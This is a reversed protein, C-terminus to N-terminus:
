AATPHQENPGGGSHLVEEVKDVLTTLTYPKQLFDAIAEPPLDRRADEESYGSTVIVRLGPYDHNLIPVLEAGGMVPMTLDLLVLTPLTSAGALAELADKGNKAELVEHGQNRLTMCALSRLMDEDDVVLITARRRDQRRSTGLRDGAPIAAAAKEASAPMFVRFTSGAGPSSHVQIFGDFSRVIGQVAPLGLGRGTFKTSFFPDFIQALTAEDMGAGNDTVELCVFHGPRIDFAQADRLVTEPTVGCDSTTVEIRGETQPPIAESANIVLDTLVREIQSPDGKILLEEPSLNFKLEVRKPVSVSLLEASGSVVDTLNFTKSIFHGKGAYALLQSTLHAARESATIIHQLEESLPYRDLALGANGTIVTLLNNFDHAIGGALLGIGELKQARRLREETRKHETIDVFVGVAGTSRGEADLLPVANGIINSRKGDFFALELEVDYVAQGTAAAKRLPLEDPPIENGDQIFRFDARYEDVLASQSLDSEPPKRLLQRACRNGLVFRCEPDRSIFMAVPMADMIAQLESHAKRLADETRRQESIDTMTGFWRAVKGARDCVPMARTLFPRVVHDTGRVAFVSEFPEGAAISHQWSELAGSSAERDLASLWGWGETQESTLGTYDRWRQNEWFFWGDPSAMGCLQPIADALTRFQNESQRLDEEMKKRATIDRTIALICAPLGLEDGFLVERTDVVLRRGDRAMPRLEAEWRGERRLIEDIETMSLDGVTQLLQHSVKGAADQESWGYIEEAGKNWTIVRHDCDMTIVADHSLDILQAHRRLEQETRARAMLAERLSGALLAVPTASVVFLGLAWGAAPDAFAHAPKLFFWAVAVASLANAAMGPGRGGFLATLAVALAFPLYPEYVGVVRKLAFRMGM